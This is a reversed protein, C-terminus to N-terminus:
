AGAAPTRREAGVSGVLLLLCGIMVSLDAFNFIGTRLWRGIGVNIFDSVRGDFMLRDILNGIGGGLLFAFGTLMPWSIRPSRMVYVLMVTLVLLPFAIFFVARVPRPMGAGLGLFGGTNEVYRLVLVDDVVRVIGRDSLRDRAVRKTAQDCGVNLLVICIIILTKAARARMEKRM